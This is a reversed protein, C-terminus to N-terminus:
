ELMFHQNFRSVFRDYSSTRTPPAAEDAGESVPKRASSASSEQLAAAVSSFTPALRRGAAAMDLQQKSGAEEAEGGHNNVAAAMIVNDLSPPLDSPFGLSRQSILRRQSHGVEEEDAESVKLGQEEEGGDGVEPLPDGDGVDEKIANLEGMKEGKDGVDQLSDDVEEKSANVDGVQEGMDGVDMEAGGLENVLYDGDGVEQLCADDVEGHKDGEEDYSDTHDDEGAQCDEYFDEQMVLDACEDDDDTGIALLLETVM